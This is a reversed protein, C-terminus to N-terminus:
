SACPQFCRENRGKRQDMVLYFIYGCFVASYLIIPPLGYMALVYSGWLMFRNYGTGSSLAYTGYYAAGIFFALISYLVTYPILHKDKRTITIATLILWSFLCISSHLSWRISLPAERLLVLCLTPDTSSLNAWFGGNRFGDELLSLMQQVDDTKTFLFLILPLVIMSLLVAYLLWRHLRMGGSSQLNQLEM